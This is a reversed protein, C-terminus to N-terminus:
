QLRTQFCWPITFGQTSLSTYPWSGNQLVKSKELVSHTYSVHLAMHSTCWPFGHPVYGEFKKTNQLLPSIKVTLRKNWFWYIRLKFLFIVEYFKVIKKFFLNTLHQLLHVITKRIDTLIKFALGTITLFKGERNM